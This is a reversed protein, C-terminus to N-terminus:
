CKEGGETDAIAQLRASLRGRESLFAETKAKLSDLKKVSFSSNEAYSAEDILALIDRLESNTYPRM